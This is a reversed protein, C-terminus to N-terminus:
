KMTDKIRTGIERLSPLPDPQPHTCHACRAGCPTVVPCTRIVQTAYVPYLADPRLRVFERLTLGFSRQVCRTLQRSDVHLYHAVEGSKYGDSRLSVAWLLRFATLLDKPSRQKERTVTRWLVLPSTHFQRGYEVITRVDPARRLLQWVEHVQLVRGTVAAEIGEQLPRWTNNVKRRALDLWTSRQWLEPVTLVRGPGATLLAGLLQVEGAPHLLPLAYVWSAMPHHERWHVADAVIRAHVFSALDMIVVPDHRSHEPSFDAALTLDVGSVGHLTTCVFQEFEPRTTLILM